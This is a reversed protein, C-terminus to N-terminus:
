PCVSCHSPVTSQVRHFANAVLVRWDHSIRDGYGQAFRAFRQSVRHIPTHLLVYQQKQMEDRSAYMSEKEARLQNEHEERLRTAEAEKRQEEELQRKAELEAQAGV